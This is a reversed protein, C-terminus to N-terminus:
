SRRSRLNYRSTNSSLRAKPRINSSGRKDGGLHSEQTNNPDTKSNHRPSRKRLNSSGTAMNSGANAKGGNISAPKNAQSNETSENEGKKSPGQIASLFGKTIAVFWVLSLVLLFVTALLGAYREFLNVYGSTMENTIVDYYCYYLSAPFLLVRFILYSLWLIAGNIVYILRWPYLKDKPLQFSRWLFLVNLPIASYECLACWSGFFHMRPTINGYGYVVLSVVHHVFILVSDHGKTSEPFAHTHVTRCGVKVVYLFMMRMSSPSYALVRSVGPPLGLAEYEKGEYLLSVTALYCLVPLFVINILQDAINVPHGVVYGKEILRIAFLHMAIFSTVILAAVCCLNVPDESPMFKLDLRKHGDLIQQQLTSGPLTPYIEESGNQAVQSTPYDNHCSNNYLLFVLLASIVILSLSLSTEQCRRKRSLLTKASAEDTVM